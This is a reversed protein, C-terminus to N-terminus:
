DQKFFVNGSFINCNGLCSTCLCLNDRVLLSGNQFTAQRVEKIPIKWSKPPQSLPPAAEEPLHLIEREFPIKRDTRKKKEKEFLTKEIEDLTQCNDHLNDERIKSRSFYLKEISRSRGRKTKCSLM